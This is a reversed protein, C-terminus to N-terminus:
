FDSEDIIKNLKLQNYLYYFFGGAAAAVVALILYLFLQNVKSLPKVRHEAQTQEVLQKCDNIAKEVLIQAASFNHQDYLAKAQDIYATTNECITNNIIYQEAFELQNDVISGANITVYTKATDTYRPSQVTANVNIEYLGSENTDLFVTLNLRKQDGPSLRSINKLSFQQLTNIFAGDRAVSSSLSINSLDTQGDNQLMIPLIVLGSQNVILPDPLILKLSAPRVVVTSGGGGGSSVTTTGTNSPTQSVNVYFIKSDISYNNADVVTLNVANSGLNATIPNIDFTFSTTNTGNIVQASLLTIWSVNLQPTLSENYVGKDPILLDNDSANASFFTHVGTVASFNGVNGLSLNHETHNIYFYFTTSNLLGASDTLSVNVSWNGVNTVLPTFNVLASANFGTSLNVPLTISTLSNNFTFWSYNASLTLNSIEDKDSVNIYCNFPVDETTNRENNCTYRFYPASDINIVTFNVLTSHSANKPSLINNSDTVTVNLIYSGVDSKQAIFSINLASANFNGYNASSFLPVQSSNSCNRTSWQPVICSLFSINFSFPVNNEEDAANAVYNFLSSMNFSQNQLDIFYPADNVATINVPLIANFPSLLVGDTVTFYLNGSTNQSLITYNVQLLGGSSLNYNALTTNSFNTFFLNPIDNLDDELVYPYNSLNYTCLSDETCNISNMFYGNPKITGNIFPATDQVIFHDALTVNGYTSNCETMFSLNGRYNFSQNYQWLLLTSNYTMNSLNGFTGSQNFAIQCLGNGNSSNIVSNSSNTYNSYFYFNWDSQSKSWITGYTLNQGDSTGSTWITSTANASTGSIIAQASAILYLSIILVFLLIVYNMSVLILGREKSM